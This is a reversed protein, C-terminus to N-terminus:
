VPVNKLGMCAYPARQLSAVVLAVTLAEGHIRVITDLVISPTLILDIREFM